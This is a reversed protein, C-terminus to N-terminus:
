RLSVPTWDLKHSIAQMAAWQTEGKKGSRSWGCPETESFPADPLDSNESGKGRLSSLRYSVDIADLARCDGRANVIQRCV